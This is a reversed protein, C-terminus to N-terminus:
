ELLDTPRTSASPTVRWRGVRYTACGMCILLDQGAARAKGPMNQLFHGGGAPKAGSAPCRRWSKAVNGTLNQDTNEYRITHSGAGLGIALVGGARPSILDSDGPSITPIPLQHRSFKNDAKSDTVLIRRGLASLLINERHSEVAGIV